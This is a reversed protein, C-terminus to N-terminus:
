AGLHKWKFLPIFEDVWPNGMLPQQVLCLLITGFFHVKSLRSVYTIHSIFSLYVVEEIFNEFLLFVIPNEFDNRVVHRKKWIM